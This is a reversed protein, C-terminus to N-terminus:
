FRRRHGILVSEVMIDVTTFSENLLYLKEDMESHLVDLSQHYAQQLWTVIKAIRLQQPLNVTHLPYYYLPPVLTTHAYYM